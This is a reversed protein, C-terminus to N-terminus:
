GLEVPGTGNRLLYFAPETGFRSRYTAAVAVQVADASGPRLLAIACGGFGAGVLRAGFVGDCGRAADTIVDLEACSVEYDVRTSEHSRDLLAGLARYDHARLAAAADRTRQM